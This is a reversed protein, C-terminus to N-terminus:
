KTKKDEKDVAKIKAIQPTKTLSSRKQRRDRALRAAAILAGIVSLIDCVFGPYSHITWDFFIWPTIAVAFVLKYKLEDRTDILCIYFCTSFLPLAGVLGLNNLPLGIGLTLACLILKLPWNLKAFCVLLNRVIAIANTVVGSFGGLILDSAGFLGAEAVETMLARRKHKIFGVIVLVICALLAVLNGLLTVPNDLSAIIESFFVQLFESM